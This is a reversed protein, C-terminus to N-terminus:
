NWRVGSELFNVELRKSDPIIKTDTCTIEMNPLQMCHQIDVIIGQIKEALKELSLSIRLQLKMYHLQEM